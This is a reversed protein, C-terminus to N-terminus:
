IMGLPSSAAVINLLEARANFTPVNTITKCTLNVLEAIAAPASDLVASFLGSEVARGFRFKPRAETPSTMRGNETGDDSRCHLM